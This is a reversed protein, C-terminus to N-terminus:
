KRCSDKARYNETTNLILRKTEASAAEEGLRRAQRKRELQLLQPQAARVHARRTCRVQEQRSREGGSCTNLEWAPAREADPTAIRAEGRRQWAVVVVAAAAVAVVEGVVVVVPQRWSRAVRRSASAPRM